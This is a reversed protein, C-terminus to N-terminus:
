LESDQDEVGRAYGEWPATKRRGYLFKGKYKGDNNKYVIYIRDKSRINITEKLSESIENAADAKVSYYFAAINDGCEKAELRDLWYYLNEYDGDIGLDYSLWILKKQSKKESM